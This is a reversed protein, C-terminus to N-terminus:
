RQGTKERAIHDGVEYWICKEERVFGGQPSTRRVHDVITTVISSKQLKSSAQSYVQLHMEVMNRFRVNGPHQLARKGRACIVDFNGPQFNPALPTMGVKAASSRVNNALDAIIKTAAAGKYNEMTTDAMLLM